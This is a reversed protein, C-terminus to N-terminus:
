RKKDVKKIIEKTLALYDETGTGKPDYEFITKGDSQSRGIATSKRIRTKMLNSKYTDELLSLAAKNLTLHGEFQTVFVGEIELKKNLRKRVELAKQLQLEIGLTSFFEPESPIFIHNAATFAIATLVGLDPPCDIVVYDYKKLGALSEKLIMEKGAETATEADMGALLSCSPIVDFGNRELVISKASVGQRFVHYITQNKRALEVVDFGLGVTLNAQPDLDILLTKKKLACLAAGINITSTTKGVGGKQNSVAIVKM